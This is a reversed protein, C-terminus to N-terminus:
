LQKGAPHSVSIRSVLLTVLNPLIEGNPFYNIEFKGLILGLSRGMKDIKIYTIQFSVKQLSTL